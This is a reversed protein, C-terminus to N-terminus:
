CAATPQTKCLKRLRNPFKQIWHDVMGMVILVGCPFLRKTEVFNLTVRKGALLGREVRELFGAFITRQKKEDYYRVYLPVPISIEVFKTGSTDSKQMRKRRLASAARVRARMGKAANRACRNKQKNTLKKM